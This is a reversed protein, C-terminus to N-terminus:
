GHDAAAAAAAVTAPALRGRLWAIMEGVIREGEFPDHHPEHRVDPYVRREISSFRETFATSATPVLTDDGGHVLLVPIPFGGQDVLRERVRRMARFIENGLRMTTMPVSLPDRDAVAPIMPERSIAAPNWPNQITLKPAIASLVPAAARLFPNVNNGLAPASLV